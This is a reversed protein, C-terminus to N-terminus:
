EKISDPPVNQKYKNQYGQRFKELNKEFEYETIEIDGVKLIIQDSIHEKGLANIIEIFFMFIFAFNLFNDKM